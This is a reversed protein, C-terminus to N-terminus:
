LIQNWMLTKAPTGKLVNNLFEFIFNFIYHWITFTYLKQFGSSSLGKHIAQKWWQREGVSDKLMVLVLCTMNKEGEIKPPVRKESGLM